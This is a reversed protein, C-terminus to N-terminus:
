TLVKTAEALNLRATHWIAPLASILAAGIAVGVIVVYTTNYIKFEMTFFDSSWREILYAAVLTGLILGPLIALLTLALDELMLMFTIAGNGQGLTRMTAIERERELVNVTMTNFIIAGAMIAAFGLFFYSMVNFLGMLDNMDRQIEDKIQVSATGPLEYLARQAATSAAAGSTGIYLANFGAPLGIADDKTALSVYGLGGFTENTIGTVTLETQGAETSLEVGDGRGVGLADALGRALIIGGAQLAESAQVGGSLRFGHLEVDPPVAMLGMDRRNDGASVEAAAVYVTEVKEVGALKSVDALTGEGQPGSFVAFVDWRDVKEFQTKLVFDTSDFMSLGTALLVLALSVAGMTYLTRRPARWINRLALRLLLPPKRALFLVRELLPTTGETLPLEPSPRMAPAPLLRSALWAPAAAAILCVALTVIVSEVVPMIQFENAVLPIALAKSYAGTMWFSLGYGAAAGIICGAIGVVVGFLLYHAVIAGTGYGIARFLGIIPRQARVLRNMAIYIAFAGVALVLIPFLIAMERAGELDLETAAYSPQDERRLTQQVGYPSLLETVQQMTEERGGEDKVLVAVENIQGEQDFLRQLTELPLFFVGFRRASPLLDQTSAANILYEPSSASGIINFTQPGNPTYVEITDGSEYGHFDAFKASLLIPNEDGPQFYRGSQMIVDNVTPRRDAPMGILRAQIPIDGTLLGTDEVVRGEAAAVNSLRRVDEAVSAPAGKVRVTFDALHGEEYTRDYSREVNTFSVTLTVFILVALAIIVTLAAFQYKRAVIDRLVLLNSKRNM